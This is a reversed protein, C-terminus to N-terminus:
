RMTMGTRTIFQDRMLWSARREKIEDFHNSIYVRTALRIRSAFLDGLCWIPPVMLFGIRWVPV